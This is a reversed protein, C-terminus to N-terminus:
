SLERYQQSFQNRVTESTNELERINSNELYM